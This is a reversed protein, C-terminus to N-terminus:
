ALDEAVVAAVIVVVHTQSVLDVGLELAEVM